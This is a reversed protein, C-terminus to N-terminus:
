SHVTAGCSNRQRGSTTAPRPRSRLLHDRTRTAGPGSQFINGRRYKPIVPNKTELGQGAPLLTGLLEILGRKTIFSVIRM